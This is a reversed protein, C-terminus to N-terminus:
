AARASWAAGPRWAAARGDGAVAVATRDDDNFVVGLIRHQGLATLSDRVQERPTHHARVVLLFGDVLERLLAADPLPLAPPTDVVVFDFSERLTTLLARLRPSKLLEYPMSSPPGGVVATFGLGRPRDVVAEVPLGADLLYSSLGRGGALGLYGAMRPHRLDAEVLAVRAEAAQALAGALNIASLTRGDGRGPSSVGIVQIGRERRLTEVHLRVARYQEAAMSTPDLVSVLHGDLEGPEPEPGGDVLGGFARQHGTGPATAVPAGYAARAPPTEAPRAPSAEAPRAPGLDAPATMAASESRREREANELAKFFKSM